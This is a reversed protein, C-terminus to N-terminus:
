KYSTKWDFEILANMIHSHYRGRYGIRRLALRYLLDVLQERWQVVDTHFYDLVQGHALKPRLAKWIDLQASTLVGEATLRALIRRMSPASLQTLMGLARRKLDADGQWLSVHKVLSEPDKAAERSWTAAIDRAIGEIAAVLAFVFSHVTGTSALLVECWVSSLSCPPSFMDKTACHALYHSMIGAFPENEGSPLAPRPMGTRTQDSAHRIFVLTREKQCRLAVRHRVCYGLLFSLAEDLWAEILPGAVGSGSVTAVTHGSESTLQLFGDCFSISADLVGPPVDLLGDYHLVSTSENRSDREPELDATIQPFRGRVIAGAGESWTAEPIHWHGLWHVGTYAEAEIVFANSGSALWQKVANLEDQSRARQDLLEYYIEGGNKSRLYGAGAFLEPEPEWSRTRLVVRIERCPIEFDTGIVSEIIAGVAPISM